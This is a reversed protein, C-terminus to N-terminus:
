LELPYATIVILLHAEVDLEVIIEWPTGAHRTEVVWREPVVDRRLESAVSLMRRVDLESFDRDSMRKFLHSSLELELEWWPPWATM